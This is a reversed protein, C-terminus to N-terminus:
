NRVSNQGAEDTTDVSYRMEAYNGLRDVQILIESLEPLAAKVKEVTNLKGAYQHNFNETNKFVEELTQYFVEDSQFLDSLDWKEQEPIDKRLPLGQSM